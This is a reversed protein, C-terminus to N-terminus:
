DANFSAGCKHCACLLNPQVIGCLPCKFNKEDVPLPKVTKGIHSISAEVVPSMSPLISTSSSAHKAKQAEEAYVDRQSPKLYNVSSYGQQTLKSLIGNLIDLICHVIYLSISLAIGALWTGLMIGVNFTRRMLIGGGEIFAFSNGLVVGGVVACCLILVVLVKLFNSFGEHM